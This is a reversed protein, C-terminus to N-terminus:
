IVPFLLVNWSTLQLAILLEYFFVFFNSLACILYQHCVKKLFAFHKMLCHKERQFKVHLVLSVCKNSM